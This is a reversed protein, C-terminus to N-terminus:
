FVTFLSCHVTFLFLGLSRTIFSHLLSFTFLGRSHACPPNIRVHNPEEQKSLIQKSFVQKSFIQKSFTQKNLIQKSFHLLGVMEPPGKKVALVLIVSEAIYIGVIKSFNAM